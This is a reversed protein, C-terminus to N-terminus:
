KKPPMGKQKPTEKEVEMGSHKELSQVFHKEMAGKNKVLYDQFAEQCSTKDLGKVEFGHSKYKETLNDRMENTLEMLRSKTQTKKDATIQNQIADIAGLLTALDNKINMNGSQMKKNLDNILTQLLNIQNDRKSDRFHKHALKGLLSDVKITNSKEQYLKDINSYKGLEKNFQGLAIDKEDLYSAQNFDKSELNSNLSKGHFEQMLTMAEAPNKDYMQKHNKDTGVLKAAGEPDDMLQCKKFNLAKHNGLKILNDNLKRFEPEDFGVDIGVMDYAVDFIQDLIPQESPTVASIKQAVNLAELDNVKFVTHKADIGLLQQVKFKIADQCGLEACANTFNRFEDIKTQSPNDILNFNLMESQYLSKLNENMKGQAYAYKFDKNNKMEGIDPLNQLVVEFYDKEVNQVTSRAKELTESSIVRPSYSPDEMPGIMLAQFEPVIGALKDTKIQPRSDVNDVEISGANSYSNKFVKTLQITQAKEPGNYNQNIYETLSSTVLQFMILNFIDKNAREIGDEPTKGMRVYEEICAERYNQYYPKLSEFLENPINDKVFQMMNIRKNLLRPDDGNELREVEKQNVKTVNGKGDKPPFKAQKIMEVQTDHLDKVMNLLSKVTSDPFMKSFANRLIYTPAQQPNRVCLAANNVQTGNAIQESFEHRALAVGLQFEEIPALQDHIHEGWGKGLNLGSQTVYEFARETFPSKPGTDSSM